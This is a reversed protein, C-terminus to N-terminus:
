AATEVEVEILRAAAELRELAETSTEGVAIM